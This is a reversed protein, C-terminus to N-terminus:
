PAGFENEEGIGAVYAGGAFNATPLGGGGVTPPPPGM